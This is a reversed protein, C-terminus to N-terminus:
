KLSGPRNLMPKAVQLLLNAPLWKVHPRPGFHLERNPTMLKETHIEPGFTRKIHPKKYLRGRHNSSHHALPIASMGSDRGYCIKLYRRQLSPTDTLARFFNFIQNRLLPRIRLPTARTWMHTHPLHNENKRTVTVTPSLVFTTM